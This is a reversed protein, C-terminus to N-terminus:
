IVIFWVEWKVTRFIHNSNICACPFSISGLQKVSIQNSYEQDFFQYSSHRRNSPATCTSGESNYSYIQKPRHLNEAHLLTAFHWIIKYNCIRKPGVYLNKRITQYTFKSTRPMKDRSRRCGTLNQGVLLYFLLTNM